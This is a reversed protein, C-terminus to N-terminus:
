WSFVDEGDSRSVFFILCNKKKDILLEAIEFQETFSKLAEGSLRSQGFLLSFDEM